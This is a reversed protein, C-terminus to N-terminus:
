IKHDSSEISGATTSYQIAPVNQRFIIAMDYKFVYISCKVLYIKAVKNLPLILLFIRITFNKAVPIDYTNHHVDVM